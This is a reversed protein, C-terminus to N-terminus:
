MSFNSIVSFLKFFLINYKVAHFINKFFIFLNKCILIAFCSLPNESNCSTGIFNNSFKELKSIILSM